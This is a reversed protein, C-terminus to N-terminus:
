NVVKGDKVTISSFWGTKYVGDPALENDLWVPSKDLIKKNREDACLYIVYNNDHQKYHKEFFVHLIKGDKIQYALEYGELRYFGDKPIKNNIRVETDGNYGLDKVIQLIRGDILEEEKEYSINASERRRQEAEFRAQKAKQIQIQEEKYEKIIKAKLKTYTLNEITLSASVQKELFTNTAILKFNWYQNGFYKIVLTKSGVAPVKGFPKIEVSDANLCKWTFTLEQNYELAKKDTQFFEIDPLFNKNSSQPNSKQAFHLDFEKRKQPNVLTEYAEQIEKFQKTFFDDDGTVDPHFKLSLKKHAKKIEATSANKEVGLIYYYDKM